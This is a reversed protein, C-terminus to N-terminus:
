TEYTTRKRYRLSNVRIHYLIYQIIQLSTVNARRFPPEPSKRVLPFPFRLSTSEESRPFCIALTLLKRHKIIRFKQQSQITLISNLILSNQTDRIPLQYHYNITSIFLHLCKFNSTTLNIQCNEGKELIQNFFRHSVLREMKEKM